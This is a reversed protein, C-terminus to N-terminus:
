ALEEGEAEGGRGVGDEEGDRGRRRRGPGGGGGEVEEDLAERAGGGRPEAVEAGAVEDVDAGADDAAPKLNGPYGVGTINKDEGGSGPDPAKGQAELSANM